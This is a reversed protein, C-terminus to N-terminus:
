LKISRKVIVDNKKLGLAREFESQHYTKTCKAIGCTVPVVVLFFAAPPIEPVLMLMPYVLSGIGILGFVVPFLIFIFNPKISVEIKTLRTHIPSLRGKITVPDQDWSRILILGNRRVLTFCDNTNLTGSLNYEVDFIGKQNIVLRIQERVDEMAEPTEYVYTNTTFVDFFERILNKRM